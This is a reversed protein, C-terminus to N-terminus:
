IYTLTYLIFTCLRYLRMYVRVEAAGTRRLAGEGLSGTKSCCVAGCAAILVAGSVPGSKDELIHRWTRQYIPVQTESYRRTDKTLLTVLSESLCTKHSPSTLPLVNAQFIHIYGGLM